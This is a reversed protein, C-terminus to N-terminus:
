YSNEMSELLCENYHEVSKELETLGILMENLKSIKQTLNARKKAIESKLLDMPVLGELTKASAINQLESLTFGLNKALKIMALVDLYSDEYIRYKGSREPTKILGIEEYHRIAKISLGSKKSLQGIYMYEGILIKLVASILPFV